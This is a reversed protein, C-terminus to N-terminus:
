VQMNSHSISIKKCDLWLKKEKTLFWNVYLIHRWWLSISSPLCAGIHTFQKKNYAFLRWKNYNDYTGIARSPSVVYKAIQRLWFVNLTQWASSAIKHIIITAYVSVNLFLRFICTFDTVLWLFFLKLIYGKM